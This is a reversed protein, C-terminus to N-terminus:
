NVGPLYRFKPIRGELWDRWRNASDRYVFHPSVAKCTSNQDGGIRAIRVVWQSGQIAPDTEGVFYKFGDPLIPPKDSM